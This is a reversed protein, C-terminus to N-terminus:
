PWTQSFSAPLLGTSGCSRERFFPFHLLQVLAFWRSFQSLGPHGAPHSKLSKNTQSGWHLSCNTLPTNQLNTWPLEASPPQAGQVQSVHDTNQAESERARGRKGSSCVSPRRLVGATRPLKELSM